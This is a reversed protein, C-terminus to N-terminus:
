KFQVAKWESTSLLWFEVKKQLAEDIGKVTENWILIKVNEASQRSKEFRLLLKILANRVNQNTRWDQDFALWVERDRCYNIIDNHASGVGSNAVPSVRKDSINSEIQLERVADAKLAGETVLMPQRTKISLLDENSITPMTEDNRFADQWDAFHLTVSARASLLSPVSLWHYRNKMKQDSEALSRTQMAKIKGDSARYPILLADFTSNGKYWLKSQNDKVWFGPIGAMEWVDEFQPYIDQLRQWVERAIARRKEERRPMAGYNEPKTIGRSRLYEILAPVEGAPSMELITQYATHRIGLAAKKITLPPTRLIKELKRPPTYKWGPIHTFVKWRSRKIEFDFNERRRACVSILEDKTYCCISTKNCIRCPRESTVAIYLNRKMEAFIRCTM